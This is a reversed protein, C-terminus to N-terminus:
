YRNNNDPAGIGTMLRSAAEYLRTVAQSTRYLVEKKAELTNHVDADYSEDKNRKHNKQIYLSSIVVNYLETVYALDNAYKGLRPVLDHQVSLPHNATFQPIKNSLINRAIFYSLHEATIDLINTIMVPEISTVM